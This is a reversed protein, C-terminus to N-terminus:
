EITNVVNTNFLLYSDLLVVLHVVADADVVVGVFSEMKVNLKGRIMGLLFGGESNIIGCLLELLNLPFPLHHLSIIPVTFLFNLPTFFSYFPIRGM